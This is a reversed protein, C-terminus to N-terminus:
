AVPNGIKAGLAQAAVEAQTRPRHPVPAIRGDGCDYCRGSNPERPERFCVPCLPRSATM